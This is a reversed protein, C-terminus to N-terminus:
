YQWDDYDARRPPELLQMVKALSIGTLKLAANGTLTLMVEGKHESVALVSSRKVAIAGAEVSLQMWAPDKM